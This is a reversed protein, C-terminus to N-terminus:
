EAKKTEHPSSPPLTNRKAGADGGSKPMFMYKGLLAAHAVVLMAKLQFQKDSGCRLRGWEGSELGFILTM